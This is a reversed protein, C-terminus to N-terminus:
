LAPPQTRGRALSALAGNALRRCLGHLLPLAQSARDEDALGDIADSIASPAGCTIEVARDIVAEADLRLAGAVASWASPRSSARWTRDDGAAMAASIEEPDGSAYPLLSIVDYLPALHVDPGDLMLSYNKAHGDTAAIAWNFILADCFRRRADRSDSAEHFLLDGM